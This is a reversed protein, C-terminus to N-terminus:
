CEFHFVLCKVIPCVISNSIMSVSFLQAYPSAIIKSVAYTACILYLTEVSITQHLLKMIIIAICLLMVILNACYALQTSIHTVCYVSYLCALIHIFKNHHIAVNSGSAVVLTPFSQVLELPSICEGRAVPHANLICGSMSEYDGRNYFYVLKERKITAPNIIISYKLIAHDVHGILSCIELKKVFQNLYNDQICDIFQKESYVTSSMDDWNTSNFNFDGTVVINYYIKRCVENILDLLKNNNIM